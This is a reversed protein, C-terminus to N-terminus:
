ECKFKPNGLKLTPIQFIGDLINGPYIAAAEGDLSVSKMQDDIDGDKLRLKEPPYKELMELYFQLHSDYPVLEILDAGNHCGVFTHSLKGDKLVKKARMRLCSEIHQFNKRPGDQSPDLPKKLKLRGPYEAILDASITVQRAKEANMKLKAKKIWVWRPWFADVGSNRLQSIVPIPESSFNELLAIDFPNVNLVENISDVLYERIDDLVVTIPRTWRNAPSLAPNRSLVCGTDSMAQHTFWRTERYLVFYGTLFAVDRASNFIRRYHLHSVISDELPQIRYTLIQLVKIIPLDNLIQHVIERPLTKLHRVWAPPKQPQSGPWLSSQTDQEM